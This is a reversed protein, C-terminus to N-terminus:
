ATRAPLPTFVTWTSPELSVLFLIFWRAPESPNLSALLCSGCSYECRFVLPLTENRTRLPLPPLRCCSRVPPTLNRLYSFGSRGHSSSALPYVSSQLLKPRSLFAVCCSPAPQLALTTTRAPPLSALPSRFGFSVHCFTGLSARFPSPFTVLDPLTPLSPRSPSPPLPPFFPLLLPLPLPTPRAPQWPRVSTSAFSVLHRHLLPLIPLCPTALLRNGNSHGGIRQVSGRESCGVGQTSVRHVQSTAWYRAAVYRCDSPLLTRRILRCSAQVFAPRERTCPSGVPQVPWSSSLKCLLDYFLSRSLRVSLCRPHDM